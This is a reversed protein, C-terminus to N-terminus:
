KIQGAVKVLDSPHFAIGQQSARERDIAVVTFCEAPPDITRM